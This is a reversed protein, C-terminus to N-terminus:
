GLAVSALQKALFSGFKQFYVIAQVELQLVLFEPKDFAFPRFAVKKPNSPSGPLTLM